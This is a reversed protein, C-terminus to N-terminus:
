MVSAQLSLLHRIVDLAKEAKGEQLLIYGYCPM